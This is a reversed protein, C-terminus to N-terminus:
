VEAKRFELVDLWDDIAYKWDFRTAAEQISHCKDVYASANAAYYKLTEATFSVFKSEEVPALIGGGRYAKQPFHGVPTGIVLRGAAAAEMVPLQAAESISSTVVADVSRYFEPMDHFSIQKGTSGAVKFPLGATTAAAEALAGRKWEVGYTKTSMSSAYGVVRLSPAIPSHFREYDIGLPAIMPARPVGKMLSACYLFESVVAYSAFRDFVDAGKKEMLMRIDFEHHSVAIIQEYPVNYVDVLVSVGDLATMFVDYYSRLDDFYEAHNHQWNLIDVVYGRAHLHRSLDYYVRGHSWSPYGFVLVKSKKPITGARARIAPHVVHNQIRVADIQASMRDAETWDVLIPRWDESVLFLEWTSCIDATIGVSGEPTASLFRDGSKLAILGRELSVLEFPTATDKSRDSRCHDSACVIPNQGGHEECILRCHYSNEAETPAVTLITNAPSTAVPGHRLVGSSDAYVVTGFATFLRAASSASGNTM